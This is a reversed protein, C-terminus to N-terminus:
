PPEGFKYFRDIALIDDRILRENDARLSSTVPERTSTSDERLTFFYDQYNVADAVFFAHGANKLIGCVPGYSSAILYWDRLYPAQEAAGATFLPRGFIESRLIPRHGLLYYLSPTIDTLFSVSRPDSWLGAKQSPPLHVLLPIRVIEPFLTYAHGWRGGEGLSDGHDSTVIIISQDYLGNAKLFKIFEGFCGDLRRVRSAYPADFGPYSEGPPVSRGERNIVSIHLNQPQTYAFVPRTTDSRAKLKGTLEQLTTCFSYSMGAMGKDLEILSPSPGMIVSLIPDKTVFSQYKDTEILKQLANMPYFPTVYQKHLLMGGVWISPESLGTGGYRTFANELVTSERAFADLSPTFTVSSNYCSLYDRRLSDIVFIFIPPRPGSSATLSEVLNVPVPDVRTSQPINTNQSLFQYFLNGSRLPSLMDHLLKFSVDYGAYADLLGAVDRERDGLLFKWRSETARFVEYVGLSALASLLLVFTRAPRRGVGRALVYFCSFTATWVVLVALKQLLYNWDLVATKVALFYALLPILFLSSLLAGLLSLRGFTIPALLLAL